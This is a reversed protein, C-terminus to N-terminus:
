SVCSHAPPYLIDTQRLQEQVREAGMPRGLFYGQAETYGEARIYDMQEATEVGEAVTAVDLNKGLGAVARLIVRANHSEDSAHVFTRDLKLRAFPFKRLYSLSSYGVGFDDLSIQIGSERLQNLMASTHDSDRLIVTETIEVEFRDPSVGHEKLTSLVFDAFSYSDRFQVASANIAVRIHEPWTAVQRCAEQVVWEGIPIILGTNEAISIFKDPGLLGREPHHWRLLSEFASIRGNHTYVLPQFWLALENNSLAKRLDSEIQRVEIVDADMQHDFIRYQGRGNQKARYLAIDAKRMLEEPTKGDRPFTSVGMSVGCNLHEGAVDYPEAMAEQIRNIALHSQMEEKINDRIVVFEDGGLRAVTDSERVCSKLRQAVAILLEDGVQHGMTDNVHKFRDLDVLVVSVDLGSRRHSNIVDILRAQLQKRNPLDTLSDHLAAHQWQKTRQEVLKELDEQKLEAKKALVSKETLAVAIQSVEIKEFPKKLILLKDTRGVRRLIEKWSRDSYATCIVAHLDPAIKWIEEVTKLGDWGPPMRMDVFMLSYPDDEEIAQKVMELAEEGQFASDLKLNRVVLPQEANLEGNPQDFFADIADTSASADNGMPQLSKRYDEHISPNDDILLVRHTTSELNLM